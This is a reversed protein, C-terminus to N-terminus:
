CSSSFYNFGDIRNLLMSYIIPSRAWRFFFVFFFYLLSNLSYILASFLSRSFSSEAVLSLLSSLVSSDSASMSCRFALDRRWTITLSSSKSSLSVSVNVLSTYLKVIQALMVFHQEGRCCPNARLCHKMTKETCISTGM